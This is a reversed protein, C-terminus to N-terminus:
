SSLSPIKLRSNNRHIKGFSKTIFLVNIKCRLVHQTKDPQFTTWKAAQILDAIVTFGRQWVSWRNWDINTNNTRKYRVANAEVCKVAHM